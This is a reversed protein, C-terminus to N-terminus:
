HLPRDKHANLIRKMPLDESINFKKFTRRVVSRSEGSLKAILDIYRVDTEMTAILVRAERLTPKNTTKM